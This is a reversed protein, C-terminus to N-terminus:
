ETHEQPPTDDEFVDVFLLEVLGDAYGMLDQGAAVGEPSTMAHDLAEFNEFYFELMRYYTAAGSPSGLVMNAQRRLIGPMQELLALNHNYGNEFAAEDAPKKFLLLLKVM